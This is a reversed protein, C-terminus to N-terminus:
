EFSIASKMGAASAAGEFARSIEDLGYVDTLLPDVCLRGSALLRLVDRHQALSSGTTATVTLAGYHILNTHLTVGDRDAPLGGFFCVRGLPAALELALAQVDPVSCATIVVDAGRGQTEELVRKKLETGTACLPTVECIQSVAKLRAASVDALLVRTAGSLLSLMAHMAGIPGAGIVLVVDGPHTGLSQRSNYCCSLPESLVASRWSMGQPIRLVNGRSVACAPILMYEQFGGDLSIGFAEYDSCMHNLGRACMDCAGCGINPAVAIREGIHYNSVGDGIGAIEGAVEHGLVRRQGHPIKFHGFRYIRLDTGCVATLKVKMLLEGPGPQYVPIEKVRLDLNEYRYAAKM